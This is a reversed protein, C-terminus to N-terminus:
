LCCGMCALDQNLLNSPYGGLRGFGFAAILNEAAAWAAEEEGLAPTNTAIVGAQTLIGLNLHLHAPGVSCVARLLPLKSLLEADVCLREDILLASAGDFATDACSVDFFRDLRAHVAPPLAWTCVVRHRALTLGGMGGARM